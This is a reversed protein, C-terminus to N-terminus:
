NKKKKNKRQRIAKPKAKKQEAEEGNTESLPNGVEEEKIQQLDPVKPEASAAGEAAAVQGAAEKAAKEREKKAKKKNKKSTGSSAVQSSGAASSNPGATGGHVKDNQTEQSGCLDKILKSQQEQELISYIQGHLKDLAMETVDGKRIQMQIQLSLHTSIERIFLYCSNFRSTEGNQGSVGAAKSGLEKLKEVMSSLQKRIQNEKQMEQNQVM